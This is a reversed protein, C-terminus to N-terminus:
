GWEAQQHGMAVWSRHVKFSRLPPHTLIRLRPLLLPHTRSSNITTLKLAKLKMEPTTIKKKEFPIKSFVNNKFFVTNQPAHLLVPFCSILRGFIDLVYCWISCSCCTHMHLLTYANYTVCVIRPPVQFCNHLQM